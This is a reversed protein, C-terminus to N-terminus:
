RNRDRPGRSVILHVSDGTRVAKGPPPLTRLVIGPPVTAPQSDVSGRTLGAAAIVSDATAQDLDALIPILVRPAGASVNLRVVASEPLATGSVPLSWVVSGKPIQPDELDGAPRGRLGAQRLAELANEVTLGRLTPVTTTRIRLPTPFWLWAVVVGATAALALGVFM